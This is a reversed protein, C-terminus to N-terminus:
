ARAIRAPLGQRVATGVVPDLWVSLGPRTPDPIGLDNLNVGAALGPRQQQRVGGIEHARAGLERHGFGHEVALVGRMVGRRLIATAEADGGPTAIRIRDGSRIGLAAADEPHIAVPNDPKLGRLRDAGIAYSNVLVSKQSVLLLPWEAEQHRARMPTGDAFAPPTWGPVGAFRRGTLASRAAAVQENYLHLMRVPKGAFREGQYTDAADQYRGGRALVTAVKRWEEPRLTGELLGRLRDLGVLELEEDPADPVPRQGAFAINAGARLYWDEARELPHPNGDKDKLAAPGFGPLGVAKACAILFSEMGIPEGAETKAARPEVVPWRATSARTPVGAWAGAWGWSEYLLSDPVIYDAYAGTENIFPDIAVILPLRKPDRLAADAAARLGPIGYVPNANWVFLAKLAYPYGDLASLLWESALQPSAAYWPREAPYARGAAQKRRFESSKEYPQNNRSLALGRPQVMGDFKALDYRPGAGAEPFAGGNQFTGGKWHLNGILTNLTVLAFANAFGNGAMTGGHTNVAAKRGHSTFERALGAITEAPIGCTAAYDELSHAFASERLLEAASRLRVPRGGIEAVADHLLVAPGDMAEAPRLAGTAAEVAVPGDKAGYRDGEIPLGLDSARLFMGERPHGPEAVVLHTANSFSPEGAQQAARASPQSLYAENWRRNEIMWRMMAMALAGDTAPRIPVWRGRDRAALSDSNGLVPDIVVYHLGGDRRGEALQWGQRKFPNGANAPATGCFIVFEANHLDPKAHPMQRLDGFAAGSGSRYSGGCYAGHGVFNISGFAQQLFRRAFNERGENTSSLLAVQNVKPGLEPAAPDIPDLSRLARLGEVHGEGFLDGGEVVEHVLQAFPIPEWRGAGRPGVRKLPTLIRSPSEMQTLVAAGRGCATSRGALGKEGHRSLAAFSERVPTAYPLHPDTSLPSYPNGAVRLVRGSAKDVRVRVGCFTTCGMCMTYSVQQGPNPTVAGSAPDVRVEPALSRGHINPAANAPKPALSEAVGEVARRATESYGAAFAALGAGAAGAKLVDRRQTM